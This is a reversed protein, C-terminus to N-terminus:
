GDIIVLEVLVIGSLPIVLFILLLFLVAYRTAGAALNGYWSALGVPISRLPYWILSGIVNFSVHFLAVTMAASVPNATAALVSTATTGLNAGIMFPLVRVMPVVGAGALPVMLSSTITSSQVMVTSFVGVLYSRLDTRFFYTRFLGDMRRLLAGRLNHVMFVLATLMLALGLGAMLLAHAMTSPMVLASLGDVMSVVPRTILKVPSNPNAIEELGIWDSLTNALRTVLGHGQGHFRSTIWELPFLLAVTLLNFFDHLLAATFSRRFNSRIRINALSVIVGTVSTGINAGMIAYVATGLPMDGGAVLTVILATTFSSSQVLVTVLVAGMLAIFPNEGYAFVRQMIDTQEGIMGLGGGMVNLAALFLYLCLAAYLGRM